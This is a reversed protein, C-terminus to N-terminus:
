SEVKVEKSEEKTKNEGEKLKVYATVKSVKGDEWFGEFTTKDKRWFYIGHGHPKDNAWDGDYEDGNSFVIMGKGQRKLNTVNIEGQYKDGSSYEIKVECQLIDNVCKGEYRDGNKLTLVGEGEKKDDKWEGKYIKGDSYKLTGKGNIWDGAWNGEYEDGNNWTYKGMGNRGNNMWFGDYKDGNGMILIGRGERKDNKWDGRYINGNSFKMTGFGDRLGYFVNGEYEKGDNWTYKGPGHFVNNEFSGEYKEGTNMVLLGKGSRRNNKWYGEYIDGNSYGFKGQGHKQGTLLSGVYIGNRERVIYGLLEDRILTKQEKSREISPFNNVVAQVLNCLTSNKTVSKAETRCLPCLSSKRLYDFLCPSCFSHYCPCLTACQHLTETCISCIIEKQLDNEVKLLKETSNLPFEDNFERTRKLDNNPENDAPVFVYSIKEKEFGLTEGGFLEKEQNLELLSDEIYLGATSINKIRIKCDSSQSIKWRDDFLYEKKDISLNLDQQDTQMSILKAWSTM